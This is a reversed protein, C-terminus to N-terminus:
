FRHDARCVVRQPPGEAGSKRGHAQPQEFLHQPADCRLAVLEAHELGPILSFVRKQEGFKLNTQFGVLNYMTNQRNESRLQVNAWPRHGTRPDTLGVPRLPGFRMTDPGRGAMVEIPMCGEYVTLNGDADFDHLPAREATSLAEYFAEYEAKSFPCNLYDAEGGATAAPPM